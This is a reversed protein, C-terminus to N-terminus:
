TARSSPSHIVKGLMGSLHQHSSHLWAPARLAEIPPAPAYLYPFWSGLLGSGAGPHCITPHGVVATERLVAPSGFICILTFRSLGPCGLILQDGQHCTLCTFGFPVQPARPHGVRRNKCSPLVKSLRVVQPSKRACFDQGKERSRGCWSLWETPSAAKQAPRSSCGQQWFALIPEPQRTWPIFSPSDPSVGCCQAGATGDGHGPFQTM